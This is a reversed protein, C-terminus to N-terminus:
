VREAWLLTPKGAIRCGIVYEEGGDRLRLKKRLQEASLPYNRVLVNAKLGEGKAKVKWVRGPFDPVLRDSVYLHTNVDLKHLGFRAGVLKYAGAKLIAASPEYLWTGNSWTGNSWTGNVMQPQAAQEEERTFVFAQEPHSLDICKIMQDNVMHDNIPDNLCKSLLLVEKVENKVAVVHIDWTLDSPQGSVASLEKVAQTLDLMPSLKLMIRGNPALHALLSPLLAVVNPTCDALRFVKGGHSDRRAPDLFILSYGSPSHGAESYSRTATLGRQQLFDEATCNHVTISLKQSEVNIPTGTPVKRSLAFNHEAIRCLEANQEVYDTHDFCESLFYTDVGYGGTLDVFRSEVEEERSEVEEGRSEVKSKKSEVLHAKYRATLESSCQECSLRVPYWWDDIAAFTPLKDATRERGEVQQLFWRWEEDSLHKYKDRQLALDQAQM